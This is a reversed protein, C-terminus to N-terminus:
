KRRNRDLITKYQTADYTSEGNLVNQVNTIISQQKSFERDIASKLRFLDKRKNLDLKRGKHEEIRNLINDFTNM